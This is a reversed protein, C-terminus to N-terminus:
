PNLGHEKSLNLVIDQELELVVCTLVITAPQDNQFSSTTLM